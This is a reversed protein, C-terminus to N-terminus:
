NATKDTVFVQLAARDLQDPELFEVGMGDQSLKRAVKGMLKLPKRIGPLSFEAQLSEGVALGGSSELLIGGQALDLSRTQFQKDGSTCDVQVRIPLRVYRRRQQLMVGRAAAFLGRLKEASLPKDLYFTVGLAFGRRMVESSDGTTFMLIPVEQNSPSVRIRQTLEFGDLHPMDASLAVLDCKENWIRKAAERSDALTMVEFGLPAVTSQFVDLTEQAHDVVLIRLQM